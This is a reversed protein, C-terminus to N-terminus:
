KSWSGVKNGNIDMCIGHNDGQEVRDAIERLIRAIEAGEDLRDEGFAANDTKMECTFM